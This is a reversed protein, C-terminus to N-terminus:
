DLRQFTVSTRATQDTDVGWTARVNGSLDHSQFYEFAYWSPHCSYWTAGPTGCGQTGLRTEMLQGTEVAFVNFKARDIGYVMGPDRVWLRNGLADTKFEEYNVGPTAGQAWQLAGLGGYGMAINLQNQNSPLRVTGSTVRNAADYSLADNTLTAGARTTM